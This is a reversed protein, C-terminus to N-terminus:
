QGPLIVTFTAGKGFESNVTIVGGHAQVLEKAIALGLGLGEKSVKFFREFIFPLDEKKIGEGTDSVTIEIVDRKQEIHQTRLEVNKNEHGQVKFRSGQVQRTQGVM